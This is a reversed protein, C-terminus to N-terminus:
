WGPPPRMRRLVHRPQARLLEHLVQRVEGLERTQVSTAAAREEAERSERAMHRTLMYALVTSITAAVTAAITAAM